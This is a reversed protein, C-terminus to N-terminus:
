GTHKFIWGTTHRQYLRAASGAIDVSAPNNDLLQWGTMPTGTFKFIAGTSHRQYLNGAAAVIQKTATNKDLLQWGTIPTGTFKFIAGTSHRQYLNTGDAAIDVSAPNNDLAQWNPFPNVNWAEFALEFRGGDGNINVSKRVPEGANARRLEDATFRLETIGIKDDFNPAGTPTGMASNIDRILAKVKDNRSASLSGLVSSGVVGKVIGRLAEPDGDDNEMLSVVFIAKEPDTLEAASGNLGWFSQSPGPAPHTEEDDVDNFGYRTVEFAPEPAALNVSTVLVYPEDAGVEDTEEHSHISKLYIQIM